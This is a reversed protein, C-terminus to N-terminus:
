GDLSTSPTPADVARNWDLARRRVWWILSGILVLPMLSLFITTLIFATRSEETGSACVACAHAIEPSLVVAVLLAPLPVTRLQRFSM